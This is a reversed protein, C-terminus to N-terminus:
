KSFGVGLAGPSWIPSTSEGAGNTLNIRETGDVQIIYIDKGDSYVMQSADPSWSYVADRPLESALRIMQSGDINIVYLDELGDLFALQEGSPSWRISWLFRDEIVRALEITDMPAVYIQNGSEYAITQGDPSIAFAGLNSENAMVRTLSSGDARARYLNETFLSYFSITEGDAVWRPLLEFVFGAQVDELRYSESFDEAYGAVVIERDSFLPKFESGDTNILYIGSYMIAGDASVSGASFVIQTGDPSWDPFAAFFGDGFQFTEFYEDREDATLEDYEPMEGQFGFVDVLLHYALRYRIEFDTLL